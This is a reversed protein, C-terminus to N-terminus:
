SDAEYLYVFVGIQKNHECNKESDVSAVHTLQYGQITHLKKRHKILKEKYVDLGASGLVLSGKYTVLM